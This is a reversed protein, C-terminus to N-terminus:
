QWKFRIRCAQAQHNRVCARTHTGTRECKREPIEACSLANLQNITHQVRKNNARNKRVRDHTFILLRSHSHAQTRISHARARLYVCVCVCWECRSSTPRLLQCLNAHLKNHNLACLESCVIPKRESHHFLTFGAPWTEVSGCTSPAAIVFPRRVRVDIM